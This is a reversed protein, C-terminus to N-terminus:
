IRIIKMERPAPSPPFFFILYCFPKAEPKPLSLAFARVSGTGIKVIEVALIKEIKRRADSYM